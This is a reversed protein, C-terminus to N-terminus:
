TVIDKLKQPRRITRGRSSHSTGMDELGPGDEATPIGESPILAAAAVNNQM